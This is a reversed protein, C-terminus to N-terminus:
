SPSWRRTGSAPRRPGCCTPASPQRAPSSSRWVRAADHRPLSDRVPQLEAEITELVQINDVAMFENSLQLVVLRVHNDDASLNRASSATAGRGSM